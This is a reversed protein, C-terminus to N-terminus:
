IRWSDGGDRRAVEVRPRPGDAAVLRFDLPLSECRLPGGEGPRSTGVLGLVGGSLRYLELGWPDRDILLLERTGVGAYFELKERSRDGKSAVEVALDPGGLWHTGCNKATTGTLYVVVDPCRYNHKWGEERDSVNVGPRVLGLGPLGAVAHFAFALGMVLEQHEDNPLPAMVYVGDWVEDFKDGGAARREEQIREELWPDTVLTAM